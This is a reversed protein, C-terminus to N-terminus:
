DSEFGVGTEIVRVAAKRRTDNLKCTRVHGGFAIM